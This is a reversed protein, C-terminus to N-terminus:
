TLLRVSIPSVYIYLDAAGPTNLEVLIVDEDEVDVDISVMATTQEAAGMIDLTRGVSGYNVLNPILVGNKSLRPYEFGAAQPIPTDLAFFVTINYYGSRTFAFSSPLNVLEINPSPSVVDTAAFEVSTYWGTKRLQFTGCEAKSQPIMLEVEYTAWLESIPETGSQGSTAVFLNAADTLRLDASASPPYSSTLRPTLKKMAMSQSSWSNTRMAGDYQFLAAKTAPAPDTPDYDFAMMIVGSTISPAQPKLEFKLSVFRYKEFNPAIASLWPFTRGDAPNVRYKSVSFNVSGKVDAIYESHRVRYTDLGSYDQKIRNGYAM